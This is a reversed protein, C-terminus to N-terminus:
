LGYIGEIVKAGIVRSGELVGKVGIDWAVGDMSCVIDEDFKGDEEDSPKRVTEGTEM